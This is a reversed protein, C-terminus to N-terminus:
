SVRSNAYQDNVVTSEHAGRERAHDTRLGPKFNDTGGAGTRFGEALDSTKIGIHDGEIDLHGPEISQLGQAADHGLSRTRHDHHTRNRFSIGFDGKIREAGASEIIDGFM